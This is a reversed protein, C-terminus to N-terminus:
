SCDDHPIVALPLQKITKLILKKFYTYQVMDIFNMCSMSKLIPDHRAQPPPFTGSFETYTMDSHM